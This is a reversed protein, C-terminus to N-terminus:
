GRTKREGTKRGRNTARNIAGVTAMDQNIGITTASTGFDLREENPTGELLQTQEFKNERARPAESGNNVQQPGNAINAQKAFVVPPNKITALTELTARCQNQARLALKLFSEMNSMITQGMGREVLRAFISQLATAQNMLMAEADSLNGGQVAGAQDRLHAMLTPVDWEQAFAGLGGAASIVRYAALDPGCIVAAANKWTEAATAGGQVPIADSPSKGASKNNKAM